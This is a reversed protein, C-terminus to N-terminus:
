NLYILLIKGNDTITIPTAFHIESSTEKLEQHKSKIYEDSTIVLVRQNEQIYEM